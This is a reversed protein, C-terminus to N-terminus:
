IKGDVISKVGAARLYKRPLKGHQASISYAILKALLAVSKRTEL